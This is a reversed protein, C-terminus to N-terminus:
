LLVDAKANFLPVMLLVAPTAAVNVKAEGPADFERPAFLAITISLVAGDVGLLKAAAAPFVLIVRVHVAL